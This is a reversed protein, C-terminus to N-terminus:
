GAIKCAGALAIPFNQIGFNNLGSVGRGIPAFSELSGIMDIEVISGPAIGINIGIAAQRWGDADRKKQNTKALITQKRGYTKCDEM